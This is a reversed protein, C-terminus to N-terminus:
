VSSELRYFQNRLQKVRIVILFTDEQGEVPLFQIDIADLINEVPPVFETQIATDLALRLNDQEAPTMKCGIVSGDKGVGFLIAALRRSNFADRVIKQIHHTEMESMEEATHCHIDTYKFSSLDIKEGLNVTQVTKGRALLEELPAQNDYTMQKCSDIWRADRRAFEFRPPRTIAGTHVRFSTGYVNKKTSFDPIDEAPVANEEEKMYELFRDIVSSIDLEESIEAEQSSESSSPSPEIGSDVLELQARDIEEVESDSLELDSFIGEIPPNVEEGFLAEGLLSDLLSDHANDNDLKPIQPPIEFDEPLDVTSAKELPIKVDEDDEEDDSNGLYQSFNEDGDSDTYFDHEEFRLVQAM